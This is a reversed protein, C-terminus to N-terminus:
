SFAQGSRYAQYPLRRGSGHFKDFDEVLAGIAPRIQKPDFVIYHTSAIGSRPTDTSGKIVVGDHGSSKSKRILLALNKTVRSDHAEVEVPNRICLYAPFVNQGSDPARIADIEYSEWEAYAKEAATWDAQSSTRQAIKELKEAKKQLENKRREFEKVNSVVNQAAFDAYEDAVSVNDTFFIGEKAASHSTSQGLRKADFESFEQNTGHYVRLPKGLQDVVVSGSFWAKFESSEFIFKQDILFKAKLM